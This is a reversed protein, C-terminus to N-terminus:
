SMIFDRYRGPLGAVRRARPAAEPIVHQQEAADSDSSELSGLQTSDSDDSDSLVSYDSDDSGSLHAFKSLDVKRVHAINRIYKRRRYSLTVAPGDIKIVKVPNVYFNTSLKDKKNQKMIVYDGVQLDYQKVRKKKDYYEKAKLKQDDDREKAQKFEVTLTPTLVPLKTKLDRNILLKAPSM